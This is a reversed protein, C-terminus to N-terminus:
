RCRRGALLAALGAMWLPAALVSMQIVQERLYALPPMSVNKERTANAMFELTPWGYQWQWIIHPLFIVGAIM